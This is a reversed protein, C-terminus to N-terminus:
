KRRRISRKSKRKKKGDSHKKSKRIKKSKSKKKKIMEISKKRKKGDERKVFEDFSAKKIMEEIDQILKDVSDNSAQIDPYKKLMKELEIDEGKQAAQKGIIKKLILKNIEESSKEYLERFTTIDGNESATELVKEFNMLMLIKSIHLINDNSLLEIVTSSDTFTAEFNKSVVNKYVQDSLENSLHLKHIMFYKIKHENKVKSTTKLRSDTNIAFLVYINKKLYRIKKLLEKRDSLKKIQVLEKSLEDLENKIDSYLNCDEETKVCIRNKKCYIPLERPCRTENNVSTDIIEDDSKLLKKLREELEVTTSTKDDKTIKLLKGTIDNERLFKLSKENLITDPRKKQLKKDSSVEFDYYIENLDLNIDFLQKKDINREWSNFLNNVEKEEYNLLLKMYFWLHFFPLIYTDIELSDIEKIKKDLKFVLNSFNSFISSTLIKENIFVNISNIFEIIHEGFQSEIDIKKKNKDEIAIHKISDYIYMFSNIKDLKSYFSDIKDVVTFIKSKDEVDLKEYIELLLIKLNDDYSVIRVYLNYLRNLLFADTGRENMLSFLKNYFSPNKIKEKLQKLKENYELALNNYEIQEQQPLSSYINKKKMLYQNLKKTDEKLEEINNNKAEKSIMLYFEKVDGIEQENLSM